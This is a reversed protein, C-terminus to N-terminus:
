SMSFCVALFQDGRESRANIAANAADAVVPGRACDRAHGPKKGRDATDYRAIPPLSSSRRITTMRQRSSAKESPM